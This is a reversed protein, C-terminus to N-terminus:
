QIPVVITMLAIIKTQPTEDYEATYQNTNRNYKICKANVEVNIMFLSSNAMNKDNLTMILPTDIHKM